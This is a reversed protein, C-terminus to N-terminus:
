IVMTKIPEEMLDRMYETHVKHEQEKSPLVKLQIEEITSFQM